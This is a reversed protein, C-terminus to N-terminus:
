CLAALVGKVVEMPPPARVQRKKDWSGVWKLFIIIRDLEVKLGAETIPQVSPRGAEDLHIRIM